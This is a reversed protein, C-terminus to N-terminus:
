SVLLTYGDPAARAVFDNGIASNAGPKNEVIFTQKLREQLKVAILRALIDNTGGPAFGVIITVAKDPYDQAAAFPAAFALTATALAAGIARLTARRPRALPKHM